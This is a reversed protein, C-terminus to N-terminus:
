LMHRPYAWEQKTFTRGAYRQRVGASCGELALGLVDFRYVTPRCRVFGNSRPATELRREVTRVVSQRTQRPVRLSKISGVQGKQAASQFLSAVM